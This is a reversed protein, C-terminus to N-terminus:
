GSQATNEWSITSLHPYLMVDTFWSGTETVWSLCMRSFASSSLSGEGTSDRGSLSLLLFLLNFIPQQCFHAERRVIRFCHDVFIDTASIAKLEAVTLAPTKLVSTDGARAPGFVPPADASFALLAPPILIPSDSPLPLVIDNEIPALSKIAAVILSAMASRSSDESTEFLAYRLWAGRRTTLDNLLWKCGLPTRDALTSLVEGFKVFLDRERARLVTELMFFCGLQFVPFLASGLHDDKWNVGLDAASKLVSLVFNMYAHDYLMRQRGIDVNDDDILKKLETSLPATSAAPKTASSTAVRDYFLMYGSKHRMGGEITRDSYQSPQNSGFAEAPIDSEDFPLVQMDDFKFWTGSNTDKILCYYHGGEANGTHVVIGRLSYEFKDDHDDPHAASESCYQRVNLSMPFEVCHQLKEKQLREIHFRFRKLHVILTNPLSGLAVRKVVDVKKSCIPFPLHSDIKNNPVRHLLVCKCRDCNYNSITEGQFFSTLAQSLDSKNEIDVSLTMFDETNKTVHDPNASCALENSTSGGFVDKLLRPQETAKLVHDLKDTVYNFFEDADQQVGIELKCAKGFSEPDFYQRDSDQLHAFMRQMETLVQLNEPSIADAPIEPLLHSGIVGRRLQPIMFFQQMVSNMYCTSGLNKMGVYGTLSKDSLKPPEWTPVVEDIKVHYPAIAAIVRLLNSLNGDILTALVAFAASRSRRSRCKVKSSSATDMEFCLQLIEDVLNPIETKISPHAKSVAALVRLCGISVRDEHSESEEGPRSQVLAFLASFFEKVSSGSQSWLADQKEVNLALLQEILWFFHEGSGVIKDENTRPIRRLMRPLLWLAPDIAHQQEQEQATAYHKCLNAVNTAVQKRVDDLIGERRLLIDTILTEIDVSTGQTSASLGSLMLRTQFSFFDELLEPRSILSSTLLFATHQVLKVDTSDHSRFSHLIDSFPGLASALLYLACKLYTLAVLLNTLSKVFDGFDITKELQDASARSLALSRKGSASKSSALDVLNDKVFYEIVSLLLTLCSKFHPDKLKVGEVQMEKLLFYLHAFGGTHFFKKCWAQSTELSVSENPEMLHAVIKLSYTLSHASSSDLLQKWQVPSELERLNTEMQTNRPLHHIIDWVAIKDVGELDLLSFLLTFYETSDVIYTGGLDAPVTPAPPAAPKPAEDAPKESKVEYKSGEQTLVLLNTPDLLINVAGEMSGRSRQLAAWAIGQSVSMFDVVQKINDKDKSTLGGVNLSITSSGSQGPAATAKAIEASENKADVVSQNLFSRLLFSCSDISIEAAGREAVSAETSATAASKKYRQMVADVFLRAMSKRRQVVEELTMQSNTPFRSYLKILVTSVDDRLIKDKAMCAVHWLSDVRNLEGFSLVEFDDNSKVNLPKSGNAAQSNVSFFFTRLCAFAWRKSAIFHSVAPANLWTDFIFNITDMPLSPVLKTFWNFCMQKEEDTVALEFLRQWILDVVPRLQQAHLNSVSTIIVRLCDLRRQLNERHLYRGVFVTGCVDATASAKVKGIVADIYEAFENSLLNLIQHKQDLLAIFQSRSVPQDPPANPGDVPLEELMKRLILTHQAVSIREKIYVLLQELVYVRKPKMGAGTVVELYKDIAAAEVKADASSPAGSPSDQFLKWLLQAAEDWASSQRSLRGVFGVLKDTWDETRLSALKQWFFSAHDPKLEVCVAALLDFIAHALHQRGVCSWLLELDPRSLQGRGAMFCIIRHGHALLEPHTTNPDFLSQVIGNDQIWKLLWDARIWKTVRAYAHFPDRNDGIMERMMASEVSDEIYVLGNVRKEILTTRFCKISFDLCFGECRKAIEEPRLLNPLIMELSNILDEIDSKKVQKLEDENM